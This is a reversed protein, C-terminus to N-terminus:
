GVIGHSVIGQSIINQASKQGSEGGHGKGKQKMNGDATQAPASGSASEGPTEAHHQHPFATEAYDCRGKDGRIRTGRGTKVTALMM